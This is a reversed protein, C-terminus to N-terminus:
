ARECPTFPPDVVLGQAQIGMCKSRHVHRVTLQGRVRVNCSPDLVATATSSLPGDPDRGRRHAGCCELEGGDVDEADERDSDDKSPDEKVVAAEGTRPAPAVHVLARM